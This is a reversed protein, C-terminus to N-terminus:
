SSTPHLVRHAVFEGIVLAWSLLSSTLGLAVAWRERKSLPQRRWRAAPNRRLRWGNWIVYLTVTAAIATGFMLPIRVPDSHLFSSSGAAVMSSIGLAVKVSNALMLLACAGQIAAAALSSAGLRIIRNHPKGEEVQAPQSASPEVTQELGCRASISTGASHFNREKEPSPYCLFLNLASPNAERFRSNSGIHATEKLGHLKATAALCGVLHCAILAPFYM